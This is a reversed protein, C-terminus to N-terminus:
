SLLYNHYILLINPTLIEKSVKNLNEKTLGLVNDFDPLIKQSMVGNATIEFGNANSVKSIESHFKGTIFLNPVDARRKANPKIREKFAIYAELQKDSKFYPNESHFPRIETSKTTLGELLQEKNLKVLYTDHQPENVVEVAKINLYDILNAMKNAFNLLQTNEM